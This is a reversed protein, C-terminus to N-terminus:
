FPFEDDDTPKGDSKPKSKKETKVSEDGPAESNELFEFDFIVLKPNKPYHTEGKDDVWSENTFAGKTLKVRPLKEDNAIEMVKDYAKGVFRVFSWNSNKYAGTERDKASTSLRAEAYKGRDVVEWLKAYTEAMWIM